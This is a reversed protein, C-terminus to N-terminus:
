IKKSKLFIRLLEDGIKDKMVVSINIDGNSKFSETIEGSLGTSSFDVYSWIMISERQNWKGTWFANTGDSKFEWRNFQNSNLDYCIIYKNTESGSYATMEIYNNSLILKSDTIGRTEFSKSVWVSQKFVVNNKWKGEWKTLVDFVDNKSLKQANINVTGFFFITIVTFILVASSLVPAARRNDKAIDMFWEVMANTKGVVVSIPIWTAADVVVEFSFRRAYPNRTPDTIWEQCSWAFVSCGTLSVFFLVIGALVCRGDRRCHAFWFGAEEAEQGTLIIGICDLCIRVVVAIVVTAAM